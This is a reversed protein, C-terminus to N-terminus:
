CLPHVTNTIGITLSFTTEAPVQAAPSLPNRADEGKLIVLICTPARPPSYMMGGCSRRQGCPGPLSDTQDIRQM